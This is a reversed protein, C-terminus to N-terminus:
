SGLGIFVVGILIAAIGLLKTNNIEENLHKKSLLLVLVYSVSALPYLISLEGFKLSPIFILTSIIYFSIGKILEINQLIKWLNFKLKNAGLKLHLAGYAAFVSAILIGIAAYVSTAM